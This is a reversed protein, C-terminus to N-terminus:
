GSLLGSSFLGAKGLSGTGTDWLGSLGKTDKNTKYNSYMEAGKTALGVFDIGGGKEGTSSKLRAEAESAMSNISRNYNDVSVDYNHMLEVKAQKTQYDLTQALANASGGIMDAAGYAANYSGQAQAQQMSYEHLASGLVRKQANNVRQMDFLETAANKVVQNNYQELAKEARKSASRGLVLGLAAGAAAGWGGGLQGGMQAYQQTSQAVAAYNTM